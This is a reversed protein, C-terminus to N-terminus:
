VKDVCRAIKLPVPTESLTLADVLTEVIEAGADACDLCFVMAAKIDTREV